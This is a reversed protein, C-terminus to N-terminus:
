GCFVDLPCGVTIGYRSGDVKLIALLAQSVGGLGEGAIFGASLAYAWM